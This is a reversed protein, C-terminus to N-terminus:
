CGPVQRLSSTDKLFLSICTDMASKVMGNSALGQNCAQPLAANGDPCQSSDNAAEVCQMCQRKCLSQIAPAAFLRQQTGQPTPLHLSNTRHPWCLM